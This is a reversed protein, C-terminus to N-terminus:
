PVPVLEAPEVNGSRIRYGRISGNTGAALSVILYVFHPYFAHAVDTSSPVPPSAPHSHYTGVIQRGTGRLQRILAIHERPDVEYRTASAVINRTPVSEDILGDPGVLLGCCENPAEARAHRVIADLVDRGIDIKM